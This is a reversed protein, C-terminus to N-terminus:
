ECVRPTTGGCFGSACDFNNNCTKGNICPACTGGGCDVDTEEGDLRHDNCQVSVCQLSLADCAQFICDTDVACSHGLTCAPCEGGCDVDTEGGNLQHDLCHDYPCSPIAELGVVPQAYGGAGVVGRGLQGDMDWGWCWVQGAMLACAFYDGTVISEVGSGLGVINPGSTFHAVVGIGWCYAAGNLIACSFEGGGSAAQVGSDFPSPLPAFTHTETGSLQTVDYYTKGSCQMGGNVVACIFEGDGVAISTVGTSLGPPQYPTFAAVGSAGNGLQGYTDDGWCKLGGTDIACTDHGNAVIATVASLGPVWYPQTTVGTTGLQDYSNDGWCVVRGQRLACTHDRGCALADVNSLGPVSVPVATNGTVASTGLQGKDNSGWCQVGGKVIACTHHIGACLSAVGCDLGTVRVPVTSYDGASANGLQEADNRGWCQAGGNVVACAHFQGAAISTVVVPGADVRAASGGAGPSGPGGDSAGAGGASADSSAGGGAGNGMSADSSGDIGVDNSAGGNAGGGSPADSSGDVGGDKSAGASSGGAGGSPSAGGDGGAGASGGAGNGGAGVDSGAASCFGNSCAFGAPCDSAGVCLKVCVPGDPTPASACSSGLLAPSVCAAGPGLASCEAESGCTKTCVGCSCTAGAACESSRSCLTLWTTNGDTSSGGSDCAGFWVIAVACLGLRTLMRM